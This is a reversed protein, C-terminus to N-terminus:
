YNKVYQELHNLIMYTYFVGLISIATIVVFCFIIIPSFISIGNIIGNNFFILIYLSFGYIVYILFFMISILKKLNNIKM